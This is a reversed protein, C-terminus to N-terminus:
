HLSQDTHTASLDFSRAVTDTGVNTAYLGFLVKAFIAANRECCVTIKALVPSLVAAGLFEVVVWLKLAVAPQPLATHVKSPELVLVDDTARLVDFTVCVM